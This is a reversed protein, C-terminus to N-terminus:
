SFLKLSEIVIIPMSDQFDDNQVCRLPSGFDLSRHYNRQIGAKCFFAGANEASGGDKATARSHRHHTQVARTYFCLVFDSFGKFAPIDSFQSINSIVKM